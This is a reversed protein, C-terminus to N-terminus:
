TGRGVLKVILTPTNLSPTGTLFQDYLLVQRPVRRVHESKTETSATEVTETPRQADMVSNPISNFPSSRGVHRTLFRHIDDKEM